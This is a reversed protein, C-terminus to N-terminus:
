SNEILSKDLSIVALSERLRALDLMKSIQEAFPWCKSLTISHNVKAGNAM